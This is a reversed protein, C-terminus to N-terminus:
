GETRSADIRRCALASGALLVSGGGDGGGSFRLRTRRRRGCRFLRRRCGAAGARLLDRRSLGTRFGSVAATRGGDRNSVAGDTGRGPDSSDCPRRDRCRQSHLPLVIRRRRTPRRRASALGDRSVSEDNIQVVLILERILHRNLHMLCKTYLPPYDSCCYLRIYM